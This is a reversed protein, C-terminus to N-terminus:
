CPRRRTSPSGSCCPRGSRRSGNRSTPPLPGSGPSGPWRIPSGSRSRSSCRRSRTGSRARAQSDDRVSVPCFVNLVLDPTLESRADFLRALGGGIGALVVDNVTGGFAARVSKLDDLPVRVTGFSRQRGVPANLSTRPAVRAGEAATLVSRALEGAREAVHRPMQIADNALQAIGSPEVFRERISDILLRGPTPAHEPRWPPADFVVADPTFDLLMTAVDVGSVGDVLAHHTKQILGVHGGELGEVFWLEWLPRSRDLLQAQVRSFLALLQERTGPAPLATFRVHHEIEFRRDDVWIPHAADLPVTMVRKRFRPLLHLRSAVLTRADALRFRRSETFFPEGEFVTLAGIHMPTEPRELHLFSADLASLRDYGSM